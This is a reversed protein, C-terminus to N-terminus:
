RRRPAAPSGSAALLLSAIVILFTISRTISQRLM